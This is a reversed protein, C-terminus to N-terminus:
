LGRIEEGDGMMFVHVLPTVREREYLRRAMVAHLVRTLFKPFVAMRKRTMRIRRQEFYISSITSKLRNQFKEFRM